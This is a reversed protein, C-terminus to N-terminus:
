QRIAVLRDLYKYTPLYDFAVGDHAVSSHIFYGNGAYLATHDIGHGKVDFYLRDGPQLQDYRVPRGVLAQEHATRPLDIGHLAFVAKVFGSCDTGAASYGGWRYHIGLFRCATQVIAAGSGAPAPRGAALQQPLRQLVDDELLQVRSKAIWGTRGDIMLVGYWEPTQCNIVLYAGPEASAYLPARGPYAYIPSNPRVVTALRGVVPAAPGRSSTAVRAQLLRSAVAAQSRHERAHAVQPVVLALLSIIPVLLQRM